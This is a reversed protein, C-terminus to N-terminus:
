LPLAHVCNRIETPDALRHDMIECDNSSDASWQSLIPNLTAQASASLLKGGRRARGAAGFSQDGRIRM